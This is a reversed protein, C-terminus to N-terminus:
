GTNCYVRSPTSLTGILRSTGETDPIVVGREIACPPVPALAGAVARALRPAAANDPPTGRNSETPTPVCAEPYLVWPKYIPHFAVPVPSPCKTQLLPPPVPPNVQRDTFAVLVTVPGDM